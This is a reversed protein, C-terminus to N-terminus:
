ISITLDLNISLSASVYFHRVECHKCNWKASYNTRCNVRSMLGSFHKYMDKAKEEQDLAAHLSENCNASRNYVSIATYSDCFLLRWSESPESCFSAVTDRKLSRCKEEGPRTAEPSHFIQLQTNQCVGPSQERSTDGSNRPARKNTTSNNSCVIPHPTSPSPSSSKARPTSTTSSSVNSQSTQKADHGHHKAKVEAGGGAENPEYSKVRTRKHNSLTRGGVAAMAHASWEGGIFTNSRATVSSSYLAAETRYKVALVPLLGDALLLSVVMLLSFAPPAVRRLEAVSIRCLARAHGRCEVLM